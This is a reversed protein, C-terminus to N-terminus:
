QMCVVEGEKQEVSKRPGKSVPNHEIYHLYTRLYHQKRQGM